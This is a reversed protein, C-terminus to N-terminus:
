KEELKWNIKKFNMKVGVLTVKKYEWFEDSLLLNAKLSSLPSSMFPFLQKGILVLNLTKGYTTLFFM